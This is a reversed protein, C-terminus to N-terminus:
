NDNFVSQPYTRHSCFVDWGTMPVKYKFLTTSPIIQKVYHMAVSDVFEYMSDPSKLDPIFEIYLAKSNVISYSAAEDEEPGGEMNYPLMIPYQSSNFIGTSGDGDDDRSKYSRVFDGSSFIPAEIGWVSYTGDANETLQYLDSKVTTDTFYWCKVNDISKVMEFGLTKGAFYHNQPFTDGWPLFSDDIDDYTGNDRGWKFFDEFASRYTEGDDYYGKGVHPANGERNEVISELYFVKQADPSKGEKLEEESVNKWGYKKEVSEDDSYLINNNEDRLVGLKRQYESNKLIFYHSMTPQAESDNLGWDYDSQNTIDYVYYVDGNEPSVGIVRKLDNITNQFKLYSVHEDYVKTVDSTEVYVDGYEDTATLKTPMLGWGGKSEFYLNGDYYKDKEFWPILYNIVKSDYGITAGTVVTKTEEDWGLGIKPVEIEVLVERVPLGQLKDEDESSSEFYTSKYTNIEKVLDTCGEEYATSGSSAVYVYETIDYVNRSLIEKQTEEDLEDWFRTVLKGGEKVEHFSHEIFNLSKYGFLALVMEISKKTGKASMIASTNLLLRRYFEYNADQSTYGDVHSPYLSLTKYRGIKSPIPIKVDWGCITLSDSLLEDSNNKSGDYTVTNTYSIGDIYKKLEDFQRGAVHIFSQIRSSNPSDYEIVSGDSTYNTLTWDYAVIAEHTMARWINDTGYSDCFDAINLLNTVYKEYEGGYIAINWEGVAKPWTYSMLTSVFGYETDSYTDLEITYNTKKNLLARQIDDLGNFFNTVEKNIPRISFGKFTGDHFLRKVGNINYSYLKVYNESDFPNGLNIESLLTKNPTCTSEEMINRDWTLVGVEGNKGYLRYKEYSYSFVRLQNTIQSIFLPAGEMDINFPNDVNYLRKGNIDVYTDMLVLEAPFFNIIHRIAGEILKHASGYYAYELISSYNTKPAFPEKVEDEGSSESCNLTWFTTPSGCSENKLWSGYRHKKKLSVGDNVLMKFGGLSYTPTSGPVYTNMSEITMFDREYINGINTSRHLDKIVYNSKTKIFRNRAM